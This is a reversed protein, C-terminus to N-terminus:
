RAYSGVRSASMSSLGGAAAACAGAAACAISPTPPHSSSSSVLTGVSKDLLRPPVSPCCRNYRSLSSKLRLVSAVRRSFCMCPCCCCLFPAPCCRTAAVVVVAVARPGAAAGRAKPIIGAVSNTLSLSVALNRCCSLSTTAIQPPDNGRHHLASACCSSTNRVGKSRRRCYMYQVDNPITRASCQRSCIILASAAVRPAPPLPAALSCRMGRKCRCFTHNKQPPSTSSLPHTHHDTHHVPMTNDDCGRMSRDIRVWGCMDMCVCVGM